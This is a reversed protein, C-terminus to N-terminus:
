VEHKLGILVRTGKGEESKLKFTGGVLFLRNAINEMGMGRMNSAFGKGNDAICILIGTDRERISVNIQTAQAHKVINTTVEQVVRIIQIKQENTWQIGKNKKVWRKIKYQGEFKDVQDLVLESMTFQGLMPPNLEHSLNRVAVIADNIEQEVRDPDNQMRHRLLIVNLRNSIEDHLDVGIRERELEQTQIHKTLLDKLHGEKVKALEAKRKNERVFAQRVLYMAFASVMCIGLVIYLGWIVLLEPDKWNEM